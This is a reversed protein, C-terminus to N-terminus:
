TSPNPLVSELAHLIASSVCLLLKRALPPCAKPNLTRDCPCATTFPLLLVEGHKQQWGAAARGQLQIHLVAINQVTNHLLNSAAASVPLMLANGARYSDQGVTRCLTRSPVPGQLQDHQGHM